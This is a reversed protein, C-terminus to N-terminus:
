TAPGVKVLCVAQIERGRFPMFIHESQRHCGGHLLLFVRKAPDFCSIAVSFLPRQNDPRAVILENDDFIPDNGALFHEQVGPRNHVIGSFKCEFRVFRAGRVLREALCEPEADIAQQQM